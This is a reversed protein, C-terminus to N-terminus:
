LIVGHDLERIVVFARQPMFCLLRVAGLLYRDSFLYIIERMLFNKCIQSVGAIKYADTDLILLFRTQSGALRRRLINFSTCYGDSSVM